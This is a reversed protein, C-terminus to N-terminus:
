DGTPHHKNKGSIRRVYYSHGTIILMTLVIVWFFCRYYEDIEREVYFLNLVNFLFLTQISRKAIFGWGDSVLWAFICSAMCFCFVKDDLYGFWDFYMSSERLLYAIMALMVLCFPIREALRLKM